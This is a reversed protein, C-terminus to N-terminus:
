VILVTDCEGYIHLRLTSMYPNRPDSSVTLNYRPDDVQSVVDITGNGFIPQFDTIDGLRRGSGMEYPELSPGPKFVIADSYDDKADTRSPAYPISESPYLRHRSGTLLRILRPVGTGRLLRIRLGHSNLLGGYAECTLTANHGPYGSAQLHTGSRIFRPRLVIEPFVSGVDTYNGRGGYEELNLLALCTYRTADSPRLKRVGLRSVTIVPDGTDDTRVGVSLDYRGLHYTRTTTDNADILSTGTVRQAQQGSEESKDNAGQFVPLLREGDAILIGLQKQVEYLPVHQMAEKVRQDFTVAKSAVLMNAGTGGRYWLLKPSPKGRAQCELLMDHGEHAVPRIKEISSRYTQQSSDLMNKSRPRMYYRHAPSMFPPTDDRKVFSRYDMMERVFTPGQLSSTAVEMPNGPVLRPPVFVIGRIAQLQILVPSDITGREEAPKGYRAPQFSWDPNLAEAKCLYTGAHRDGVQRIQLVQFFCEDSRSTFTPLEPQEKIM